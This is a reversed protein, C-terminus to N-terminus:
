RSRRRRLRSLLSAAVMWRLRPSATAFLRYGWQALTSGWALARRKEWNSFTVGLAARQLTAEMELLRIREAAHREAGRSM